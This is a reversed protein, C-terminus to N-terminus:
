KKQRNRETKRQAMKGEICIYKRRNRKKRETQRKKEIDRNRKRENQRERKRENKRDTNRDVM